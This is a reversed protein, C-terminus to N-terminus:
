GIGTLGIGTLGIGTLGIGTLSIGTLGAALFERIKVGTTKGARALDIVLPEGQLWPRAPDVFASRDVVFPVGNRM